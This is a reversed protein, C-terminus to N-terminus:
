ILRVQLEGLYFDGARRVAGNETASFGRDILSRKVTEFQSIDAFRMSVAYEGRDGNYRIRDIQVGSGEATSDALADTILLFAPRGGGAALVQRAYTRPDAGAADPFAEQHLALTEDKLHNAVRLDRVVSAINLLLFVGIAAAALIGARRWPGAQARWDRKRRFEGQLLNPASSYAGAYLGLLAAEEMPGRWEATVVERQAIDAPQPSYIVIEKIGDGSALQAAVDDAMPRELAFGSLGAACIIRDASEILTMRGIALPMLAFDATVIDPAVGADTLADIWQQLIHKKVALSLGAGSEHRAIALHINELSEALEDELLFGVAARFQNQSRPPAPLSRMTVIEGQLVAVIQRAQKARDAIEQLAAVNEARHVKVESADGVFSWRVGEEPAGGLILILSENM